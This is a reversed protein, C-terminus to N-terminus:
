ESSARPRMCVVFHCVCAVCCRSWCMARPHCDSVPRDMHRSRDRKCVASRLAARARSLSPPTPGGCEAASLGTNSPTRGRPGVERLLGAHLHVPAGSLFPIASKTRAVPPSHLPDATASAVHLALGPSGKLPAPDPPPPPPPPCGGGWHHQFKLPVSSIIPRFQTAGLFM